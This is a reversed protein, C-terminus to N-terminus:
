GVVTCGTLRMIALNQEVATRVRDSARAWSPLRVVEFESDRSGLGRLSQAHTQTTTVAIVERPGLGRERRWAAIDPFMGLVIYRKM